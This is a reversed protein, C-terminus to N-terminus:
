LEVSQWLVQTQYQREERNPLLDTEEDVVVDAEDKIVLAGCKDCECILQRLEEEVVPEEVPTEEAAIEDEVIEDEVAEDEAAETLKASEVEEYLKNLEDFTSIFNYM